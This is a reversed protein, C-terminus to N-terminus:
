MGGEELFRGVDEATGQGGAGAQADAGGRVAQVQQAGLEGQGLEAEAGGAGEGSLPEPIKM